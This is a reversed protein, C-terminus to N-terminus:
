FNRQTIRTTNSLTIPKGFVTKAFDVTISLSRALTTDTVVVNNSDYMVFSIGSVNESFVRDELCSASATAEPCTANTINGPANTNKLTRKYMVEGQLFYVFENAYPDGTLPDYIINNASDTAPSAIVLINNADSTAWGSPQNADTITSTGRVGASLRLDETLQGLLTQSELALEATQQAQVANTYFRFTVMLLVGSLIAAITLAMIVEVVTFGSTNLKKTKLSIM